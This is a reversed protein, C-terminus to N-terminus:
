GKKGGAALIKEKGTGLKRQPTAASSINSYGSDGYFNAARVRYWYITNEAVTTDRYSTVNAEVSDIESFTNGDTSREIKFSTENDSNDTWALNIQRWFVAGATLNTPAAPPNGGSNNIYLFVASFAGWNGDADQGRVFIIHRGESWGTTDITAQAAEVPSNFNGDAPSMDYAFPEPGSAWPPVDVYYEAGAINQWPESGTNDNYRTDDMTATLTVGTGAPIGPLTSGASLAPNVADPGASTMYPTRAVKLAYLLAPINDPVLTNEFYTCSEFFATGLEVTYAPIGMEGYGFLKSTGDPTTGYVSHSNFYGIKRALTILETVNPVPEVQDSTWRSQYRVQRGHSHMDLYIGTTDLPAPDTNNPGRQNPFQARIYNQIAQTEPESAAYPGRYLLDCPDGSSGSFSNWKFEFNRNLDAGRYNSTPGCYNQNTNKRWSLGTEAQKRGDPNAHLMMHIEHHDLMWTVDPDIDYNNVLYEALRTLLEATTYERAHIAGTLFLKPKPGAVASNTLKLVYLDYGGSGNTKEWSDGQDTWTALGPYNAAISAATTFTEEVTRYCPYGPIGATQVLAAEQMAAIKDALPNPIEEIKLGTSLLRDYEESTTVEVIVYGKEYKSELANMTIVINHATDIEDFYVRFLKVDKFPEPMYGPIVKSFLTNNGAGLSLLAVILNLVLFQRWYKM